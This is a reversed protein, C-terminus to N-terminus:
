EDEENEGKYNPLISKSAKSIEKIMVLAEKEDISGNNIYGRLAAVLLGSAISMFESCSMKKDPLADLLKNMIDSYEQGNVM